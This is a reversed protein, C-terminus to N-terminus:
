DLKWGFGLHLVGGESQQSRDGGDHGCRLVLPDVDVERRGLQVLCEADVYGSRTDGVNICTGHVAADEDASRLLRVALVVEVGVEGGVDGAVIVGPFEVVVLAAWGLHQVDVVFSADSVGSAVNSRGRMGFAVREVDIWRGSVHGEVAARGLSARGARLLVLVCEPEGVVVRILLLIADVDRDLSVVSRVAGAARVVSRQAIAVLTSTTILASHQDNICNQMCNGLTHQLKLTVLM